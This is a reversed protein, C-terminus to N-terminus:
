DIERGNATLWGLRVSTLNINGVDEQTRSLGYMYLIMLPHHRLFLRKAFTRTKQSPDFKKDAGAYSCLSFDLKKWVVALNSRQNERNIVFRLHDSFLPRTPSSTSEATTM